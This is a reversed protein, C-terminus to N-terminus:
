ANLYTRENNSPQVKQAAEAAAAKSLNRDGCLVKVNPLFAGGHKELQGLAQAVIRGKTTESPPKKGRVIHLNGVVLDCEPGGGTSQVKYQSIALLVQFGATRTM